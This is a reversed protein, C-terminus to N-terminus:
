VSYITPLTLHTYSVTKLNLQYEPYEVQPFTKAKDFVQPYVRYPFTYPNEGRVYSIYGNIKRVLLEEGGDKFKGDEDFIEGATIRGRQDNMNMINILWIIERYSNFMPTASLFLLRMNQAISVLLELNHSAKKNKKNDDTNINHVEDIIILRDNFENRLRSVVSNNVEIKERLLEKSDDKDDHKKINKAIKIIYNALQLYGMFIYSTNIIHRVKIVIKNKNDDGSGIMNMPDVEKLLKMGIYGPIKWAGDEYTLKREDFIQLRFNDQVNESAVIIIRKNIGMQKLYVRTEEAIGIASLTKGTGLGHYLLLSNYPTQFSMFNKVFTQHPSLEFDAKSLDDIHQKFEKLTDPIDGDYQYDNFEKKEAIKLVFNPDNLTPYLEVGETGKGEAGEYEKEEQKLLIKNCKPTYYNHINCESDDGEGGFKIKSMQPEPEPLQKPDFNYKVLNFINIDKLHHFKKTFTYKIFKHKNVFVYLTNSKEKFEVLLSFESKDKLINQIKHDNFKPNYSVLYSGSASASGYSKLYISSKSIYFSFKHKDLSFEAYIQCFVNYFSLSASNKSPVLKYTLLPYDKVLLFNKNHKKYNFIVLWLKELFLGTDIPKNRNDIRIDNLLIDQINEYFDLSNELIVDRKVAFLGAYCVPFLEDQDYNSDIVHKIKFRKANFLFMTEDDPLNYANKVGDIFKTYYYEMYYYPYKTAFNKDMYEVHVRYKHDLWAKKSSSHELVVKPPNSFFHPPEGEPWYWASLPQVPEFLHAHKILEIFDPSHFLSDGQCFVTTHSFSSTKYNEIIHHLYTGSERGVNPLRIFPVDIDDNGKNYVTVKVNKPLLKLWDLNENYRAVVLEITDTGKVKDM